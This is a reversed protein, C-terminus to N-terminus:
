SFNPAFHTNVPGFGQEHQAHRGIKPAAQIAQHVDIVARHIAETMSEGLALRATINASLFCGTGHLSRSEINSKEHQIITDGLLALLHVSDGMRGMKLLCNKVGLDQLQRAGDLAESMTHIPRDLLHQLEFRNPTILDAYPLIHKRFFAIAPEDILLHGHKSVMVPDIIKPCHFSSLEEAVVEMIEVSGLAGTKLATPPIDDRIAQCQQRVMSPSLMELATVGGTNQATILTVVTTGYIKFQQFVKLDVQVGAGGSPDSGAISLAIPPATTMM